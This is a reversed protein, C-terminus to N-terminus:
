LLKKSYIVTPDYVSKFFNNYKILDMKKDNKNWKAGAILSNERTRMCYHNLRAHRMDVYIRKGSTRNHTEHYHTSLAQIAGVKIM